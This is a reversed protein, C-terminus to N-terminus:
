ITEEEFFEIPLFNNLHKLTNYYQLSNKSTTISMSKNALEYVLNRLEPTKYFEKERITAVFELLEKKLRERKM